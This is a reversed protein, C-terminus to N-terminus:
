RSMLRRRGCEAPIGSGVEPGDEVNRVDEVTQEAVLRAPRNRGAAVDLTQGVPTQGERPAAGPKGPWTMGEQRQVSGGATQGAGATAGEVEPGQEGRSHPTTLPLWSGLRKSPRTPALLSRGFTRRLLRPRTASRRRHAFSSPGPRFVRAGQDACRHASALHTRACSRPPRWNRARAPAVSAVSSGNRSSNQLPHLLRKTTQTRWKRPCPWQLLPQRRCVRM